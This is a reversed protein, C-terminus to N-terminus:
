GAPLVPVVPARGAASEPPQIKSDPQAQEAAHIALNFRTKATALAGERLYFRIADQNWQTTQWELRRVGAALSKAKAHLLLQRGYGQGRLCGAVFLCDFHAYVEGRWFSYDFALAAYGALKNAEDPAVILRVPPKPNELIGILTALGLPCEAQEFAAHQGVLTLLCDADRVTADRVM